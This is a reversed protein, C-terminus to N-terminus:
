GSGRVWDRIEGMVEDRVQNELSGLQPVGAAQVDWGIERSEAVQIFASRSHFTIYSKHPAYPLPFLIGWFLLSSLFFVAFLIWSM